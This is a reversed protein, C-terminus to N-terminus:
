IAVAPVFYHINISDNLKFYLYVIREHLINCKVSDPHVADWTHINLLRRIDVTAFVEDANTEIKKWVQLDRYHTAVSASDTDIKLIFAGDNNAVITLYPSMNKMKEVVNRIHKLPPLEITIDFDPINPAQYAAWERRHIIRIPVDHVCQWDTILSLLEIELTLCPQQKNTLKIKVSKASAKLSVLSKALMLADFELLIRNQEESMGFILYENFFHDRSLEAWVIPMRDDLVTFCVDDPALQLVCLKSMKSIANVINTFDRMALSDIMKCRFRM